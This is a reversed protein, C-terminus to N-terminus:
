REMGLCEVSRVEVGRFERLRRVGWYEWGDFKLAIRSIRAVERM